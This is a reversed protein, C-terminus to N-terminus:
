TMDSAGLAGSITFGVGNLTGATGSTFDAFVAGAVAADATTLALGIAAAAIASPASISRM